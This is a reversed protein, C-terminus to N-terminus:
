EDGAGWGCGVQGCSCVDGHLATLQDPEFRFTRDDGIMHALLLGTPNEIGSWETDEDPETEWGEVRWAVGESWGEATYAPEFDFPPMAALEHSDMAYPTRRM